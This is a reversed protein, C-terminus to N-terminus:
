RTEEDLGLAFRLADDLRRQAAPDLRGIHETLTAKRITLLADCNIQSERPLGHREDLTVRSPLGRPSSTVPAANVHTLHGLVADRHIIVVPRRGGVADDAWYLDGRTM